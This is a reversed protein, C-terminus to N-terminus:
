PVQGPLAPGEEGWHLIAGALPTAYLDIRDLAPLAAAVRERMWGLLAPLEGDTGTTENLAHHDLERFVPTFAARVDGYDITWGRLADLPATLHLRTIYSHGHLRRRADGPAANELRVASEFRQEKWIRFHRGDYHCGATVTEYVTVWSLEPLTHHLRQWIWCALMESTPNELGAIDNLCAHHLMEHLPQWLEGLRDFDIGMDAAALDQNVHLIVEFGHGHMRGCPHGPAVCPLRHAAEFRFRRWLHARNAHDIDVGQHRTSQVSVTDLVLDALADRIWRAINEDTPVVIRENLYGYDLPAIAECLREGLAAGDRSRVAALFSHGHLRRSRHGQPLVPVSVAAEFPAAAVHLLTGSV